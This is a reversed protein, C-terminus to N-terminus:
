FKPPNFLAKNSGDKCISSNFAYYSFTAGYETLEHSMLWPPFRSLRVYPDVSLQGLTILQYGLSKLDSERTLHLRVPLRRM